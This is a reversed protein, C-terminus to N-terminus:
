IIFCQLTILDLHCGSRRDEWEGGGEERREGGRGERGERGQGERDVFMGNDAKVAEEGQQKYGFILDIWKHLRDSVYQSELAEACKETFDKADPTPVCVDPATM